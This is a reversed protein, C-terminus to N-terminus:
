VPPSNKYSHSVPLNSVLDYKWALYGEIKERLSVSLADDCIIVECIKGEFGNSGDSNAGLHFAGSENSPTGLTNDTGISIGNRWLEGSTTGSRRATLIHFVNNGSFQSNSISIRNTATDGLDAYINNDIWKPHFYAFRSTATTQGMLVDSSAEPNEFVCFITAETGHLSPLSSSSLLDISGSFSVCPKGNLAEMIVLPKKNLDTQSVNNNNQSEDKWNGIRGPEVFDDPLFWMKMSPIDKKNPSWYLPHPNNKNSSVLAGPKLYDKYDLNEVKSNPNLIM